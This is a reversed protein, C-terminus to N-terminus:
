VLLIRLLFLLVWSTEVEFTKTLWPPQRKLQLPDKLDFCGPNKSKRNHIKSTYNVETWLLVARNYLTNLMKWACVPYCTHMWALKSWWFQQGDKFVPISGGFGVVFLDPRLRLLTNHVNMPQQSTLSLPTLEEQGPFFSLPDHQQLYYTHFGLPSIVTGTIDWLSQTHAVLTYRSKPSYVM